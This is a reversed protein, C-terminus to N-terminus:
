FSELQTIQKEFWHSKIESVYMFYVINFYKFYQFYDHIQFMM